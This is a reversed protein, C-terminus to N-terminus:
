MVEKRVQLCLDILSPHPSPLHETSNSIGQRQMEVRVFFLQAHTLSLVTYLEVGRPSILPPLLLWALVGM